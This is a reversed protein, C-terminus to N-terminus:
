ELDTVEYVFYNTDGQWPMARNIEKYRLMVKQGQLAELKNYLEDDTLSFYWTNGVIQGQESDRFGGLNLQGEFTKFVYGKKSIKILYGTRTGDSYTWNSWVFFGVTFVLLGVLGLLFVRRFFWKTNKVGTAVGEEINEKVEQIEAAIKDKQEEFEEKLS